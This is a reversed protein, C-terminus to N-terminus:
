KIFDDIVKKFDVWEKDEYFNIEIPYREHSELSKNLIELFDNQSTSYYVLEKLNNGTRSYAHKFLKTSVSSKEIADELMIMRENIDKEPMGNNSSGDYKWSVVTLMPYKEIISKEPLENVFKMIVPMDKEYYRGIIGKEDEDINSKLEKNTSDSQHNKQAKSKGFGFFSVM